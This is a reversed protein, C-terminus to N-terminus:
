SPDEQERSLRIIHSLLLSLLGKVAMVRIHSRSGTLSLRKVETGNKDSVAIYVTGVMDPPVGEGGSAYGTTAVGVDSLSLARANEAMEKCCEASVATYTDLTSQSVHLLGRKIDNVYSVIGGRVVQSAGPVETLEKTVLGGTCSEAAFVTLGKRTLAEIVAHSLTTDVGYIFPAVATTKLAEIERQCLEEAEAVTKASATVRIRVEGELCYPAVTPNLAALMRERLLAEVESEGMGCINVNHSILVRDTYDALFPFVQHDFMPELERPPGPLLVIMKKREESLIACGDATGNENPFVTAGKPMMAQKRNNETMTKGRRQFYQEIRALSEADEVLIYGLASAAVEKTIDDYTPGLGGTLILLDSRGLATEIAETLRARNDGVVSQHYQDIGLAALGRSIHAADTNVIDGILLETGVSLVEATAIRFKM